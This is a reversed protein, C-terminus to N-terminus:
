PPAAPVVLNAAPVPAFEGWLRDMDGGYLRTASALLKAPDALHPAGRAHVYVKVHPYRHVITGAAGGHDLHIHTLLLGHVDAPAVGAAALGGLLAGLCSTPGPDVILAGAPVEILAAAIQGRGGLFQLDLARPWASANSM